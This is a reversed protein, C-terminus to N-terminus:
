NVWYFRAAGGFTLLPATMARGFRGLRCVGRAGAQRRRACTSIARRRRSGLVTSKRFNLIKATATSPRPPAEAGAARM